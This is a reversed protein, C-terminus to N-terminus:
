VPIFFLACMGLFALGVGMAEKRKPKKEGFCSILTSVIMTGGTVMPYQVSSDVYVLAFVLLLNAVRNIVGYLAGLGYSQLLLPKNVTGSPCRDSLARREFFSLLLWAALSVAITIIAGWISYELASTKPLESSTFLKTIVGNMGNLIFIGLYFLTGRGGKGKEVTCVLSASIFIVCVIKSLTIGEGYFLIGQFFPLVMGGLMAFLSFLSLNIYDLAKFTCFTFAMGNLASWVAMWFTFATFDLSFKNFALLVILGFVSGIFASEM